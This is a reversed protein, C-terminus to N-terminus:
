SYLSIQTSPVVTYKKRAQWVCLPGITKLIIIISEEVKNNLMVLQQLWVAEQAAASLAVGETEASSIAVCTQKNSRWSVDSNELLFVSSEAAYQNVKNKFKQRLMLRHVGTTVGLEKMVDDSANLLLEGDIGQDKFTSAFQQFPKTESLFQFVAEVPYMEAIAGPKKNVMRKFYTTIRLRDLASDTGIEQLEKDRFVVLLEGNIDMEEFKDKYGVSSM